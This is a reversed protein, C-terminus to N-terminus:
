QLSWCKRHDPCVTKLKSSWAKQDRTESELVERKQREGQIETQIDKIEQTLRATRYIKLLEFFVNTWVTDYQEGNNKGNSKNDTRECCVNWMRKVCTERRTAEAKSQCSLKFTTPLTISWATWIAPRKLWRETRKRPTRGFKGAQAAHAKGRWSIEFFHLLNIDKSAKLNFTEFEKKMESEQLDVFNEVSHWKPKKGCLWFWAFDAGSKAGIDTPGDRGATRRHKRGLQGSNGQGEWAGSEGGPISAIQIAISRVPVPGWEFEMMLHFFVHSFM